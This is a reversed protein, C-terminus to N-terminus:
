AYELLERLEADEVDDRNNELTKAKIRSKKRKKKM